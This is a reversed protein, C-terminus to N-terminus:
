SQDIVESVFSPLHFPCTSGSAGAVKSRRNLLGGQMASIVREAATVDPQDERSRPTRKVKVHSDKVAAQGPQGRVGRGNTEHPVM